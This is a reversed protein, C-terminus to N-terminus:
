RARLVFFGADGADPLRFTFEYEDEAVAKVRTPALAEGSGSVLASLDSSYAPALAEAEVPSSVRLKVEMAGDAGASFSASEVRPDPLTEAFCAGGGAAVRRLSGGALFRFSEASAPLWLWVRGDGDAVVGDTGYGEPLNALAAAEGPALGEVVVCRVVEVGNSPAPVFGNGGPRLSGGLITAGGGAAGGAGPGVDPAGVGGEAFLTAGRQVFAGSSEVMGGGLAAAYRGGAAELVAPGSGHASVDLTGGPAIRVAPAYLGGALGNRTGVIALTVSHAGCDLAPLGESWEDAVPTWSEGDASTWLGTYENQADVGEAFFTGNRWVISLFTGDKKDSRTWSLGDESWRLGTDTGSSTVYRGGGAALARKTGAFTASAETPDGTEPFVFAHWGSDNGALFRGGGGAVLMQLGNLATLASYGRATWRLGDQSWYLGEPAAGRLEGGAVFLGDAWVVANAYLNTSQTWSLGGDVSTWLGRTSAAVLTGGDAGGRAIARLNTPDGDWSASNWTRGGDESVALGGRFRAAVFRSGAWVVAAFNTGSPTWSVNSRTWGDSQLFRDGVAAAPDSPVQIDFANAGDHRHWLGDSFCAVWNGCGDTAASYAIALGDARARRGTAKASLVLNSMVVDCDAEACLVATGETDVGSVVFPGPGSLRVVPREYVWGAPSGSAIDEGNISVGACAAGAATGLVLLFLMRVSRKM